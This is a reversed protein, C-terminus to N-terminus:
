EKELRFYWYKLAKLALRHQPGFVTWFNCFEDLFKQAGLTNFKTSRHNVVNISQPVNNNLSHM